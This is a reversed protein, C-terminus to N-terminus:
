NKQFSPHHLGRGYNATRKILITEADLETWEKRPGYLARLEAVEAAACAASTLGGGLLPMHAPYACPPVWTGRAALEEDM